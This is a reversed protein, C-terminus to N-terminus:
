NAGRRVQVDGLLFVTIARTQKETSNEPLDCEFHVHLWDSRPLSVDATLLAIGQHSLRPRSVSEMAVKVGSFASTATARLNTAIHPKVFISLRYDGALAIPIDLIPRRTNAWRFSQGFEFPEAGNWGTGVPAALDLRVTTRTDIRMGRERAYDGRYREYDGDIDTPIPRFRKKGEEYFRADFSTVLDRISDVDRSIADARLHPVVSRPFLGQEIVLRRIEDHLNRFDIVYQFEALTSLAEAMTCPDAYEFYHDVEVGYRRETVYRLTDFGPSFYGGYLSWRDRLRGINQRPQHDPFHREAYSIFSALCEEPSRL